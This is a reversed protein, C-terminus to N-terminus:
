CDCNAGGHRPCLNDREREKEAARREADLEARLRLVEEALPRLANRASLALEQNANPGDERALDNCVAHGGAGIGYGRVYFWPGSTAKAELDLLAKIEDDTLM